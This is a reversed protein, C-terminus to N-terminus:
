YALVHVQDGSKVTGSALTGYLPTWGLKECLAEAAARHNEDSNLASDWELTISGAQAFAKVRSGRVNSPGIYRTQIAQM